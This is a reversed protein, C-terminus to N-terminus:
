LPSAAETRPFVAAQLFACFIRLSGPLNQSFSLAFVKFFLKIKVPLPCIIIVTTVHYCHFTLNSCVICTKRPAFTLNSFVPSLDSYGVLCTRQYFPIGTHLVVVCVSSHVTVVQRVALLAFLLRSKKHCILYHSDCEFRIIMLDNICGSCFDDFCYFSVSCLHASRNRKWCLFLNYCDKSRNVFVFVGSLLELLSGVFTQDVDDSWCLFSYICKGSQLHRSSNVDIDLHFCFLKFAMVDTLQYLLLRLCVYLRM